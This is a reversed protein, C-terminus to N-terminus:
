SRLTTDLLKYIKEELNVILQEDDNIDEFSKGWFLLTDTIEGTIKKSLSICKVDLVDIHSKLSTVTNQQQLSLSEHLNKSSSSFVGFLSLVLILVTFATLIMSLWYFLLRHGMSVSQGNVSWIKKRKKQSKQDVKSDGGEFERKRGKYLM